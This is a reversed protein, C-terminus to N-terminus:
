FFFFFLSLLWSERGTVELVGNIVYKTGRGLSCCVYKLVISM